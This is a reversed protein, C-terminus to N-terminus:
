WYKLIFHIAVYIGFCVLVVQALILFVFLGNWIGRDDFM